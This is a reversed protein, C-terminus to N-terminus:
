RSASMPRPRPWSASPWASIPARGAAPRVAAGGAPTPARAAGAGDREIGRGARRAGPGDTGAIAHRMAMMDAVLPPRQAQSSVLLQRQQNVDLETVFGAKARAAILNLTDQQSKVEADLIALRAQDARLSVYDTAIEATLSVEGDRMQWRAAESGAEAAEVSRRV